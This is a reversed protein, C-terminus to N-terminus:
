LLRSVGDIDDAADGNDSNGHGRHSQHHRQRHEVTKVVKHGTEEGLHVWLQFNYGGLALAGGGVVRNQGFYSLQGLYFYGSLTQLILCQSDILVSLQHHLNFTYLVVEVLQGM